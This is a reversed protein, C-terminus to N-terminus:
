DSEYVIKWIVTTPESVTAFFQSDPSWEIFSIFDTDTQIDAVLELTDFHAVYIHLLDSDNETLLWNTSVMWRLDPSQWHALIELASESILHGTELDFLRVRSGLAISYLRNDQVAHNELGVGEQLIFANQQPNWLSLYVPGDRNSGSNILIGNETWWEVSIPTEPIDRITDLLEGTKADYIRVKSLDSAAAIQSGDPSWVVDDTLNYIPDSLTDGVTWIHRPGLFPDPNNISVVSLMTGDPSWVSKGYYDSAYGILEIRFGDLAADLTHTTTNYVQIGSDIISVAFRTHDPAYVPLDEVNELTLLLSATASDYIRLTNTDDLNIIDNQIPHRDFTTGTETL